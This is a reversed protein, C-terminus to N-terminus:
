KASRTRVREWAQDLELEDVWGTVYKLDLASGQVRVIGAADELQRDSGGPQWWRMKAILTDEPSATWTAVDGISVRVRRPFEARAHRTWRPVIIDAKWSSEMDIVNFMSRHRVAEEATDLDLYFSEPDFAQAFRRVTRADLKAVVDLDMTSRPEGHVSSAMSGVVMYEVGAADLAAVVRALFARFAPDM